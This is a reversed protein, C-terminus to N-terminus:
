AGVTYRDEGFFLPRGDPRSWVDDRRVGLGSDVRRVLRQGAPMAVYKRNLAGAAREGVLRAQERSLGVYTIQFSTLHAGVSGALSDGVGDDDNFGYFVVYPPPASITKATEDSDTVYGDYVTLNPVAELAALIAADDASTM